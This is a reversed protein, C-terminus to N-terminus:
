DAKQRSVPPHNSSYEVDIMQLFMNYYKLLVPFELEPYRKEYHAHDNGLFRVVDATKLLKEQKLYKALARELKMKKVVEPPEKLEEIASDKVLVELACRYGIAALDYLDHEVAVQAQHHLEAFRPSLTELNEPAPVGSDSPICRIFNLHESDINGKIPPKGEYIALFLRNCHTCRISIAVYANENNAFLSYNTITGDTGYGCHPCTMPKEYTGTFYRTSNFAIGKKSSFDM